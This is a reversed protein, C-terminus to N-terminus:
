DNITMTGKQHLLAGSEILIAQASPNQIFLNGSTQNTLSGKLHIAQLGSNGILLFGNNILQSTTEGLYAKQSAEIINLSGNNLIKGFNTLGNGDANEITLTTSNELFLNGRNYVQEVTISQSSTIAVSDTLMSIEVKDCPSPLRNFNWNAPINWAGTGGVWQIQGCNSQIPNDLIITLTDKRIPSCNSGTLEYYFTSAGLAASNPTFSNNTANYTGGITQLLPDLYWNLGISQSPTSIHNDHITDPIAQNITYLGHLGRYHWGYEDMIFGQFHYFPDDLYGLNLFSTATIPGDYYYHVIGYNNFNAMNVLNKRLTLIGFCSQNNFTAFNMLRLGDLNITPGVDIAGKNIITGSIVNIGAGNISDVTIQSENDISGNSMNVGDVFIRRISVKGQDYNKLIGGTFKIGHQLANTIQLEGDNHNEFIGHDLLLADLTSSDISVMGNNNFIPYVIFHDINIGTQNNVLRISAGAENTFEEDRLDLGYESCNTLSINGGSKNTFFDSSALGVECDDISISGYNEGEAFMGTQFNSINIQGVSLNVFQDTIGFSKNGNVGVLEITGSNSCDAGSGRIFRGLSHINGENSFISTLNSTNFFSIGEFLLNSFNMTGLLKNSITGGYVYVGYIGNKFNITGRNEITCGECEINNMTSEGKFTLGAQIGLNLKGFILARKCYAQYNMPLNVIASADYIAIVDNSDPVGYKWNFGVGWNGNTGTWYNITQIPTTLNFNFTDVCGINSQSIEIYFSTLGIANDNPKWTYTTEDYTGASTTLGADTYIDSFAFPPSGGIALPEIPFAEYPHNANNVDKIWIGSNVVEPTSLDSFKEYLIGTNVIDVGVVHEVDNNLRLTGANELIGSCDIFGRLAIVSCANNILTDGTDALHLAPFAPDNEIQIRGYNEVKGGLIGARGAGLISILGQSYNVMKHKVFFEIGEGVPNSINLTGYNHFTLYNGTQSHCYMAEAPSDELSVTGYNTVNGACFFIGDRVRLTSGTIITLNGLHRFRKCRATIGGTIIIPEFYSTEVTDSLSPVGVPSWNNADSWLSNGTSDTWTKVGGYCLNSIFLISLISLIVKKM